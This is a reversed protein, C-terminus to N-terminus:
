REHGGVPCPPGCLVPPPMLLVTLTTLFRRSFHDNARANSTSHSSAVSAASLGNKGRGVWIAAETNSTNREPGADCSKKDSVTNSSTSGLRPLIKPLQAIAVTIPTASPVASPRECVANS